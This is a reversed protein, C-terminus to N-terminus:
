GEQTFRVVKARRNGNPKTVEAVLVGDLTARHPCQIAYAPLLGVLRDVTAEASEGQSRIEWGNGRNMEITFHAMGDEKRRRGIYSWQGQQALPIKCSRGNGAGRPAGSLHVARIFMVLLVLLDGALIVLKVQTPRDADLARAIWEIM